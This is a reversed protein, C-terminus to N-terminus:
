AASWIRRRRRATAPRQPTDATQRFSGGHAQTVGAYHDARARGPFGHVQAHQHALLMPPQQHGTPRDDGQRQEGQEAQQQPIRWRQRHENEPPQFRGVFAQRQVDEGFRQETFGRRELLGQTFPRAQEPRLQQGTQGPAPQAQTAAKHQRHRLEFTEVALGSLLTQLHQQLTVAAGRLPQRNDAHM